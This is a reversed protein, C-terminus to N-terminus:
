EHSDPDDKLSSITDSINEVNNVELEQDNLNLIHDTFEFYDTTYQSNDASTDNNRKRKNYEYLGIVTFLLLMVLIGLAVFSFVNSNNNDDNYKEPNNYKDCQMIYYIAKNVIGDGYVTRKENEVNKWRLQGVQRNWLGYAMIMNGFINREMDKTDPLTCDDNLDIIHEVEYCKGDRNPCNFGNDVCWEGTCRIGRDTLFKIYAKRTKTKDHPLVQCMTELDINSMNPIFTSALFLQPSHTIVWSDYIATHENNSRCSSAIVSIPVILLLVGIFKLMDDM